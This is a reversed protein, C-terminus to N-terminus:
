KPKILLIKNKELIKQVDKNLITSNATLTGKYFSCNQTWDECECKKGCILNNKSPVRIAGHECKIYKWCLTGKESKYVGFANQVCTDVDILQTNEASKCPRAYTLPSFVLSAIISINLLTRITVEKAIPKKYSRLKAKYDEKPKEKIKRDKEEPKLTEKMKACIELPFLLPIARTLIKGKHWVKAVRTEGDRGEILKDIRGMKWSQKPLNKDGILVIDGLTPAYTTYKGQKHKDFREKLSQLYETSWRAWFKEVRIQLVGWNKILKEYTKEKETFDIDKENEPELRLFENKNRNPQMFDIPCLPNLSEMDSCVYTLPRSNIISKVQIILTHMNEIDLYKKGTALKIHKKTLGILREYAGGFWPSLEPIFKWELKDRELNKEIESIAKSSLKFHTGNDSILKRPLGYEATFRTFIQLFTAATLDRAIELHIGRCTLCTFLCIWIKLAEDGSQVYLPGMYDVGTREFVNFRNIRDEPLPAMKPFKYPRLNQMFCKQCNKIVNKVLTRAKPIWFNTRIDALTQQIGGHLNKRHFEQCIMKSLESENSLFIPYNETNEIRGKCVWLDYKNKEMNLGDKLNKTPPYKNQANKVLLLEALRRIETNEKANQVEELIINHWKRQKKCCKKIFLFVNKGISAIKSWDNRVKLDIFDIEINNISVFNEKINKLETKPDEPIKPWQSKDLSLFNPGTWWIKHNKLEIISIGRTACDAPNCETNIYRWKIESVEKIEEVRRAVFRPLKTTNEGSIWALTCKSDSWNTISKFNLKCEKKLFKVMRTGILAALLELRPITINKLPCLRNKAFIISSTIKENHQQRVYAVASYALASADVFVHLEIKSNQFNQFFKRNFVIEGQDSIISNWEEMDINDLKDDWGKGKKWLKQFFLKKKLQVPILFGLPDFIKAVAQLVTRKTWFENKTRSIKFLLKDMNIDWKIGLVKISSIKTKDGYLENIKNCNSAFEHLEMKAKEFFQISKGCKDVADAEDKAAIFVNDAYLKLNLNNENEHELHHQLVAAMLFPASIVGFPLRKHRMKIVNELSPPENLNKLWLLRLVDRDKKHIEIQHFAAKVDAIIAIDFTRFNILTACLDPLLVPGRYLQQNLSENNKTKCSADIVVRIRDKEPRYIAHHPIYHIKESNDNQVIELVDDKIQEKFIEDYKRLTKDRLEKDPIKAIKQWIGKLRQFSVWFNDPLLYEKNKWPLAVKYRGSKDRKINKLFHEYAIKDDNQYPCESIGIGELNWFNEITNDSFITNMQINKVTKAISKNKKKIKSQELITEIRAAFMEKINFKKANAPETPIPTCICYYKSKCKCRISSDRYCRCSCVNPVPVREENNNIEKIQRQTPKPDPPTRDTFNRLNRAGPFPSTDEGEDSSDLLFPLIQKEKKSIELYGKGALSMGIKTNVLNFGSKMKPFGLLEFYYEAGILLEPEKLTSFCKPIIEFNKSNKTLKSDLVVVPKPLHDVGRAVIEMKQNHKCHLYFKYVNAEEEFRIGMAGTGRIIETSIPKLKLENALRNKILSIEAGSDLFAYAEFTRNSVGSNINTKLVHFITQENKRGRKENQSYQIIVENEEESEESNLDNEQVNAMIKRPQKEGKSNLKNIMQPRNQLNKNEGIKENRRCLASCHRKDKCHFCTIIEKCFNAGHGTKLCKLCLRLERAREIRKEITAYKKCQNDYHPESCFACKLVKERNFAYMVTQKPFNSRNSNQRINPYNQSRPAGWQNKNNFLNKPPEGTSFEKDMKYVEEKLRVSKDLFEWMGKVGMTPTKIKEKALDTLTWRPLKSEIEIMIQKHEISEGMLELQRLITDIQRLTQRLVPVQPSSRPIKRLAGHLYTKIIEPNGYNNKLIEMVTILNKGESPIGEVLKYADGRLSRKLYDLKMKNSIDTRDGINTTFDEIFETYKIIDGNFTQLSLEPLRANVKEVPGRNATISEKLTRMNEKLRDIINRSNEILSFLGIDERNTFTYHEGSENAKDVSNKIGGLYKIWELNIENIAAFTDGYKEIYTEAKRILENKRNEDENPVTFDILLVEQDLRNLRNKLPNLTNKFGETAM